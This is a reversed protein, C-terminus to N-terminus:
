YVLLLTTVLIYVFFARCIFLYVFLYNKFSYKIVHVLRRKEWRLMVKCLINVSYDSIHFSFGYHLKLFFQNSEKEKCHFPYVSITKKLLIDFNDVLSFTSTTLSINTIMERGIFLFDSIWASSFNGCIMKLLLLIVYLYIKMFSFTSELEWKPFLFSFAYNLIHM